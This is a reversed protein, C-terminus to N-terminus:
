NSIQEASHILDATAINPMNKSKIKWEGHKKKLKVNITKWQMKVKSMSVARNFMKDTYGDADADVGSFADSLAIVFMNPYVDTSDM